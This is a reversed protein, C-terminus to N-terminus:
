VDKESRLLIAAVEILREASKLSFVVLSLVALNNDRILETQILYAYSSIALFINRSLRQM